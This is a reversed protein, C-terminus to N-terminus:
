VKSKKVPCNNRKEALAHKVRRSIEESYSKAMLVALENQFQENTM